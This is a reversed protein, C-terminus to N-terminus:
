DTHSTELSTTYTLPQLSKTQLSYHSNRRLPKKPSYLKERHVLSSLVSRKNAPNHQSKQHLYLNIHTSKRYVQHEIEILVRRFNLILFVKFLNLNKKSIKM